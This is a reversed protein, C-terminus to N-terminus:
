AKEDNDGTTICAYLVDYLEVKKDNENIDEIKSRQPNNMTNPPYIDALSKVPDTSSVLHEMRSIENIFDFRNRNFKGVSICYLTLTTTLLDNRKYNSVFATNNFRVYIEKNGNEIKYTDYGDYSEMVSKFEKTDLGEIGGKIIRLYGGAVRLSTSSNEIDSLQIDELKILSPKLKEFESIETSSVTSSVTTEDKWKQIYSYDLEGSFLFLLRTLFPVGINIKLSAGASISNTDETEYTTNTKRTLKGREREQLINQITERDFYVIKNIREEMDKHKDKEKRADLM